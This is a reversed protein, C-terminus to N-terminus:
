DILSSFATYCSHNLPFLHLWAVCSLAQVWHSGEVLCSGGGFTGCGGLCFWESAMLWTNLPIHM